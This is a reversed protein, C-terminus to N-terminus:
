PAPRFGASSSPLPMERLYLPAEPGLNFILDLISLSPIFGLRDARVQTYPPTAAARFDVSRFDDAGPAIQETLETEIGLYRCVAKDAERVFTEVSPSTESPDALLSLFRDAVFEFYPTRGYASELATRHIRWWEGHSSVAVDARKLSRDLGHPVTVPVTLTLRGRTDAIDYRHLIKYRKDWRADYAIHACPYAALTAYYAAPGLLMPPLIAERGPFRVLPHPTM